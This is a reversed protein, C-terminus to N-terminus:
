MVSYVCLFGCEVGPVFVLTIPDARVFVCVRARACMCVCVYVCASVKEGAHPRRYM